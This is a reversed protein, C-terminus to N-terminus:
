PWLSVIRYVHAIYLILAIFGGIAAAAIFDKAVFLFKERRKYALIGRAGEYVALVVVLFFIAALGSM